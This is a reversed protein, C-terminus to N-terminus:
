RREGTSVIVRNLPPPSLSLQPPPHGLYMRLLYRGVKPGDANLLRKAVPLLNIM